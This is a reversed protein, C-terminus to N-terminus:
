LRGGTHIVKHTKLHSSQTLARLDSPRLFAKGCQNCEYPKEGTHM